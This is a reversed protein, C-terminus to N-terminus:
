AGQGDWKELERKAKLVVPTREKLFKEIAARRRGTTAGMVLWLDYYIRPVLWMACDRGFQAYGPFADLADLADLIRKVLRLEELM